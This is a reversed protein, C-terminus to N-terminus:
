RQPSSPGAACRARTRGRGGRLLPLVHPRCLSRAHVCLCGCARSLCVPANPATVAGQPQHLGRPRVPARVRRLRVGVRADRHRESTCTDLYPHIDMCVWIYLSSHIAILDAHVCPIHRPAWVYRYRHACRGYMCKYMCAYLYM